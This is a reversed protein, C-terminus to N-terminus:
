AQRPLRLSNQSRWRPVYMKCWKAENGCINKKPAVIRRYLDNTTKGLRWRQRCPVGRRVLFRSLNRHKLAHRRADLQVGDSCCRIVASGNSANLYESTFIYVLLKRHIDERTERQIQFTTVLHPYINAITLLSRVIGSINIFIIYCISTTAFWIVHELFHTFM